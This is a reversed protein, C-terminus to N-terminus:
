KNIEVAFSNKGLPLLVLILCLVCIVRMVVIV